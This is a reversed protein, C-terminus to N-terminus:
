PQNGQVLNGTGLDLVTTLTGGPVISVRNGQVRNHFTGGELLIGTGAPGFLAIRNALVSNRSAGPDLRIGTDHAAIRNAIVRNGSSVLSGETGLRLGQAAILTNGVIQSDRSGFFTIGTQGPETGAVISNNLIRWEITNSVSIGSLGTEFVNNRVTVDKRPSLGVHDIGDGTCHFALREVIINRVAVDDFFLGDDCNAITAGHVGRLTLRSVAINISRDPGSYVFEGQRGDLIVTGSTTGFNTASNIATEIDLASSVDNRTLTVTAAQTAGIALSCSMLLLAIGKM